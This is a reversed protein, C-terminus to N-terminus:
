LPLILSNHFQPITSNHQKSRLFKHMVSQISAWDSPYIQTGLEILGQCNGPDESEQNHSVIESGGLRTESCVDPDEVRSRAVEQQFPRSPIQALHRNQIIKAPWQLLWQATQSLPKRQCAPSPWAFSPDWQYSSRAMAVLGEPVRWCKGTGGARCQNTHSRMCQLNTYFPHNEHTKQSKEIGSLKQLEQSSNKGFFQHWTWSKVEDVYM